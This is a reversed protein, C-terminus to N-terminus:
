EAGYIERRRRALLAQIQTRDVGYRHLTHRVFELGAEFEPRVVEMAGARMLMQHDEGARARVIIDLQPNLRKAHSLVLRAAAPDPVTVALIRARDLACANLVAPNAANGYVRPIGAQRLEDILYPNEEIVVCRFDRRMVERTLERGVRGYGCVVVHRHLEAPDGGVVGAAPERLLWGLIPREKAWSLVPPGAQRLLPTLVMSLLAAMLIASNLDNSIVEEDVGVQALVFSFEGMQALALGVLVATRATYGLFAVALATVAFKGVVMAGAILAVRGPNDVLVEPDILMGMAVFFITAFVERLPLVDALMQYSFESESVVLGALFAGFALSLGLAFSGAALGFALSLAALLFLERSGTAAFRFLLWPIVRTGLLFTAALLFLAKGAALAIDGVLSIDTTGATATILIVMPVVALDQVLLIGLAAKGYPTESENRDELLKLVVMTSSLAMAYGLLVGARIDLGLGAGVIVGLGFTLLIQAGGGLLAVRRVEALRKLSFKLGLTFLLLAVGLEAIDQVREIDVELGPIYNKVVLGAVLYGLVVPLRLLSAVLGGCTAAAIIIILDTILEQEGSV